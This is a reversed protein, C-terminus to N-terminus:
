DPPEVALNRQPDERSRASPLQPSGSNNDALAIPANIEDGIDPVNQVISILNGIASGLHESRWRLVGQLRMLAATLEGDAARESNEILLCLDEQIMEDRPLEPIRAEKSILSRAVYALQDIGEYEGSQVAERGWVVYGIMWAHLSLLWHRAQRRAEQQKEGLVHVGLHRAATVGAAVAFSAGGFQLANELPEQFGLYSTALTAVGTALSNVGDQLLRYRALRVEDAVGHLIENAMEMRISEEGDSPGRSDILLGYAAVSFRKGFLAARDRSPAIDAMELAEGGKETEAARSGWLAMRQFFTANMGNRWEPFRVGNSIAERTVRATTRLVGRTREGPIPAHDLEDCLLKAAQAIHPPTPDGRRRGPALAEAAARYRIDALLARRHAVRKLARFGRYAHSGSRGAEGLTVMCTPYHAIDSTRWEGLIPFLLAISTSRATQAGTIAAGCSPQRILDATFRGQMVGPTRETAAGAEGAGKPRRRRDDALVAHLAWAASRQVLCNTRFGRWDM